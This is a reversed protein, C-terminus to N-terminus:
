LGPIGAAVAEAMARDTEAESPMAAGNSGCVVRAHGARSLVNIAANVDAHMTFGCHICHFVTQVTRNLPSVFGCCSCEQSTHRPGVFVAMGGRWLTKYTMQRKFEGWGQDLIAKNLGSKQRVNKGPNLITGRASASMDAVELDEMAVLAHNKSLDNSIKHLRDLRTRAIKAHLKSIVQKQKRSNRSGKVMRALKRQEKALRRQGKRYADIPQFYTGDSLTILRKVGFDCGVSSSSSHVPVPIDEETQVSIYWYGDHRSVTLNKPTGTITRSKYFLVWGIKPLFARNGDIAFGQPYRFSQDPGFKRKFRPFRKPSTKDFADKLARDLDMLKQQLAQSPAERLFPFAIKWSVLLAAMENYSLLGANSDLRKKQISLAKNWVFRMCGAARTLHNETDASKVKLRFKFAKRVLM